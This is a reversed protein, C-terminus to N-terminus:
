ATDIVGCGVRQGSSSALVIASGGHGTLAAVNTNPILSELAGVGASSVPLTLDLPTAGGVLSRVAGASRFGGAADCRGYETFGVNYLGPDLHGGSIHIEVSVDGSLDKLQAVGLPTDLRDTLPVTAGNVPVASDIEEPIEANISPPVPNGTFVAPMSYTASDPAPQAETSCATLIGASTLATAVALLRRDARFMRSM